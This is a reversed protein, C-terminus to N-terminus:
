QRYTAVRDYKLEVLKRREDYLAERLVKERAEYEQM